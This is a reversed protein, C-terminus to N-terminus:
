ASSPMRSKQRDRPSPSTYLLCGNISKLIVAPSKFPYHTLDLIVDIYYNNITEEKPIKGRYKDKEICTFGLTELGEILKKKMYKSDGM